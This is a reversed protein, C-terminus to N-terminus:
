VTYQWLAEEGKLDSYDGATNRLHKPQSDTLAEVMDKVARDDLFSTALWDDIQKPALVVPVNEERGPAVACASLIACAREEEGQPSIRVDYIGALAMAEDSLLLAYESQQRSREPYFRYYASCPIVCRRRKLLYDFAKNALVSVSDALVAYKSRFPVLGWRYEDLLRENGQGYIVPVFDGPGSNSERKCYALVQTVGFRETLEHVDTPLTLRYHM